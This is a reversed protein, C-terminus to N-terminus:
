FVGGIASAGKNILGGVFEKRNAANQQDVGIQAQYKQLDQQRMAQVGQLYNQMAQQQEQSRLVSGQFAADANGQAIGTSAMRNALAPDGGMTKAMGIQNAANASRNHQVMEQAASPGEGTFAWNGVTQLGQKQMKRASKEKGTRRNPDVQGTLTQSYFDGVPNGTAM